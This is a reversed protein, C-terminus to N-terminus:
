KILLMRKLYIQKNTKLEYLYIGSSVNKGFEDKGDWSTIVLEDRSIPRNKFLNRIKQGKLNHISLNGICNENMMFSIETSPNFPNPYNQHLGYPKPIEPSNPNQWEEAPIILSIPGYLETEGSYDVSELWYFYTNGAYVPFVDEFSYDTPESTTGAGPILGLSLNLLYTEENSLADESEGRYINWGANNTESQTVWYLTPVNNLYQVTFVSLEVPLPTDRSNEYAGIDPTTGRTNGEIDTTPAGDSTGAGICPSDDDLHFDSGATIFLPDGANSNSDKSTATQWDSLTEDIVPTAENRYAMKAGDTYHFQNYDSDFVYNGGEPFNKYIGYKDAGRVWVINNKFSTTSSKDHLRRLYLAHTNDTYITNNYIKYFHNTEPPQIHLPLGDTNYILNNYVTQDGLHRYIRIGASFNDIINRYISNSGGGHIEIAYYDDRNSYKEFRNDYIANNWGGNLAIGFNRNSLIILGHVTIYSNSINIANNYILPRITPTQGEQGRLTITHTADTTKGSITVSEVYTESDQIEVIYSNGDAVLDGPIANVAAQITLWPLSPDDMVGPDSGTKSVYLYHTAFAPTAVLLMFMLFIAISFFSKKNKPTLIGVSTGLIKSFLIELRM